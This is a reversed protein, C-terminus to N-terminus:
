KEGEGTQKLWENLSWDFELYKIKFDGEELFKVKQPDELYHAIFSLVAYDTPSFGQENAPMGFDLRFDSGYWKYIKSLTVKKEGPLIQTWEAGNVFRRAALFLQGEVRPGTYAEQILRPCSKAPCALAAHIKEDRFAQLLERAQIRNLSYNLGAIKIFDLDWIGPITQITRVPYHQIIAAVCGAHYANIFLALREERPWHRGFDAPDISELKKLYRTLLSPNAKVAKYDVQGEESVFEKLFQDWLGHDFPQELAFLPVPSFFLLLSAAWLYRKLNTKM